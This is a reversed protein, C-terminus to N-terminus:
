QTPGADSVGDALSRPFRPHGLGGRVTPSRRPWRASFLVRGSLARGAGDARRRSPWPIHDAKHPGSRFALITAGTREVKGRSAGWGYPAAPAGRMVHLVLALECRQEGLGAHGQSAKRPRRRGSAQGRIAPNRLRIPGTAKSTRCRTASGPGRMCSRATWSRSNRLGAWCSAPKAPNTSLCPVTVLADRVCRRAETM